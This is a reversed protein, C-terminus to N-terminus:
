PKAKLPKLSVSGRTWLNIGASISRKAELANEAHRRAVARAAAEAMFTDRDEPKAHKTWWSEKSVHDHPNVSRAGDGQHFKRPSM